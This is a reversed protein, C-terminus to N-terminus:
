EAITFYIGSRNKPSREKILEYDEETIKIQINEEEANYFVQELKLYPNQKSVATFILSKLDDAENTQPYKKLEESSYYDPLTVYEDMLFRILMESTFHYGSYKEKIWNAAQQASVKEWTIKSKIKAPHLKKWEKYFDKGQKKATAEDVEFPGGYRKDKPEEEKKEKVSIKEIDIPKPEERDNDTSSYEEEYKLVLASLDLDGNMAKQNLSGFLKELSKSSDQYQAKLTEVKEVIKAFENQLSIPPKIIEIKEFDGKNLIPLTTSSSGRLVIYPKMFRMLMEGFLDNFDENWEIANIQQNLTSITKARGVKGITAGICCVFTTGARVKRSNKAGEETVFRKNPEDTELDGPTIFPIDGGFMGEYKSPPTTGTVINGANKIITKEFHKSNNLADGFLKFFTSQLFDTLIDISEKRQKVASEAKDLVFAIKNQVNIEPLKFSLKELNGRSIRQRTTGTIYKNIKNRFDYSNILYKLWYSNAINRDPRVICVDVVTVCPLDLGPFICARGLPDPMRAILLDGEKLFTCKLEKAKESTLFRNSKNIFYGDGIDALQILRVDGNVDQDKSEVWDGDIFVGTEGIIKSLTVEKM